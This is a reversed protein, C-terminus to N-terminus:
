QVGERILSELRSIQSDFQADVKRICSVVRISHLATTHDRNLYISIQPLSLRTFKRGLYAAIQRPRALRRTRRASLFDVRDIDFEKLVTKIIFPMDTECSQETAVFIWDRKQKPKPRKPPIKLTLDWVPDTLAFVPPRAGVGLRKLRAARAERLERSLSM